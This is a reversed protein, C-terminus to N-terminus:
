RNSPPDGAPMTKPLATVHVNDIAPSASATEPSTETLVLTTLGSRATFTFSVPPNYGNDSHGNGSRSESFDALSAGSNAIGDYATATIRLEGKSSFYGGM